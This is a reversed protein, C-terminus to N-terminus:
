VVAIIAYIQKVPFCPKGRFYFLLFLFPYFSSMFSPCPYIIKIQTEVYCAVTKRLGTVRFNPPFSYMKFNVMFESMIVKIM